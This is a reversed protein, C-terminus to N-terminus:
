VRSKGNENSRIAMEDLKNCVDLHESIKEAVQKQMKVIGRSLYTVDSELQRKKELLEWFKKNKGMKIEGYDWLLVIRM